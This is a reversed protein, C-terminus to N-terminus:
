FEKAQTIECPQYFNQYQAAVKLSRAVERELQVKGPNRLM